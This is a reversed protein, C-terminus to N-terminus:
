EHNVGEDPIRVYYKSGRRLPWSGEIIANPHLARVAAEHNEETDLAYDYATTHSEGHATDQAIIREPETNTAPIKRTHVIRLGM